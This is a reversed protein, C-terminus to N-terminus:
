PQVEGEAWQRQLEAWDGFRVHPPKLTGAHRLRMLANAINDCFKPPFDVVTEVLRGDAGVEVKFSKTNGAM